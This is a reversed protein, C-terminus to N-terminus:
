LPKTFNAPFVGRSGDSQKQGLLWGDDLLDEECSKLVFIIEGADFSLEDTDEAVYKHTARVKYLM